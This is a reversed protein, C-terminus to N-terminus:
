FMWGFKIVNWYPLPYGHIADETKSKIESKTKIFEPQAQIQSLKSAYQDLSSINLGISNTMSIQAGIETGIVYGGWSGSWMYLWGIQPTAFTTTDVIEFNLTPSIPSPFAAIITQNIKAQFNFKMRRMGFASGVFFNRGWPFYSFKGEFQMYDMQGGNLTFTSQNSNVYNGVDYYNFVNQIHYQSYGVSAGFYKLFKSEVNINPGLFIGFGITPGIRFEKSEKEVIEDNVRNNENIVDHDKLTYSYANLPFVSVFVFRLLIRGLIREHFNKM